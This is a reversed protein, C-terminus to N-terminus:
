FLHPMFIRLSCELATNLLAAHSVHTRAPNEFFQVGARIRFVWTSYNCTASCQELTSLFQIMKDQNLLKKNMYNYHYNKYDNIISIFYKIKNILENGAFCIKSSRDTSQKTRFSTFNPKFHQLPHRSVRSSEDNESM